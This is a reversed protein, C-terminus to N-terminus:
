PQEEHFSKEVRAREETGIDSARLPSEEEFRACIGNEILALPCDVFAESFM